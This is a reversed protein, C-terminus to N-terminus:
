EEGVGVVEVEESAAKGKGRHLLFSCPLSGGGVAGWGAASTAESTRLDAETLLHVRWWHTSITVLMRPM